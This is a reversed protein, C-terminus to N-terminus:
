GLVEAVKACRQRCFRCLAFKGLAWRVLHDRECYGCPGAGLDPAGIEPGGTYRMALERANELSVGPPADDVELGEADAM